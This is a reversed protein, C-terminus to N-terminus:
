GVALRRTLADRVGLTEIAAIATQVSDAFAPMTSLDEGWLRSERILHDAARESDEWASAM